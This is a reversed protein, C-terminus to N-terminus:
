SRDESLGQLYSQPTYEKGEVMFKDPPVGLHHNLIARVTAVAEDENWANASKLQALYSSVEAILKAHDHFKQGPKLGSYVDWPMCGYLKWDRTVANAESGEAVASDGARPRVAQGAGPVRRLGHVGGLPPGEERPDQLDGIRLVLDDLLVLLHQHRGALDASQALRRQVRGPKQACRVCRPRRHLGERAGAEKERVRRDDKQIEDWFANKPEVFIGKDKTKEQSLAIAPVILVIVILASLTKRM